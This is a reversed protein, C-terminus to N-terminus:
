CCSYISELYSSSDLDQEKMKMHKRESIISPNPSVPESHICYVVQYVDYSREPLPVKRRHGTQMVVRGLNRKLLLGHM